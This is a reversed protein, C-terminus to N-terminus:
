KIMLTLGSYIVLGAFLKKLLTAKIKGLLLAGCVGGVIAPIMFAGLGEASIEGMFAYGLCSVASIPLMVCLANAFVDRTDDLESGCASNLAYVAIIGGGAGLLGNAIGALIGMISLFYGSKTIEKM